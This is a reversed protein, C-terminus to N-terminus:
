EADGTIARWRQSAQQGLLIPQAIVNEYRSLWWRTAQALAFDPDTLRPAIRNSVTFLSDRTM